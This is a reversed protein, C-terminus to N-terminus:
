CAANLSMGRGSAAVLLPSGTSQGIIRVESDDNGGPGVQGTRHAVTMTAVTFAAVTQLFRSRAYQIGNASKTRRLM